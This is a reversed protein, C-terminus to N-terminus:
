FKRYLLIFIFIPVLYKLVEMLEEYYRLVNSKWEFYTGQPYSVCSNNERTLFLNVTEEDYYKRLIDPKEILENVSLIENNDYPIVRRDPDIMHWKNDFWVELLVHGYLSVHRTTIDQKELIKMLLYSSQSCILDQSKFFNEHKYMTGLTSHVKGLIYMIWNTNITHVAVGHPFTQIIKEYNLIVNEKKNSDLSNIQTTTNTEIFKKYSKKGMFDSVTSVGVIYICLLMILIKIKKRM